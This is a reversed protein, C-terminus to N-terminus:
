SFHYLDVQLRLSVLFGYWRNFRSDTKTQPLSLLVFMNQIYLILSLVSVLIVNDLISGAFSDDICPVHVFGYLQM